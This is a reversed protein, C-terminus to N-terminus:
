TRVTLVAKNVGSAVRVVVTLSLWHLWAPLLVEVRVDESAHFVNEAVVLGARTKLTVIM